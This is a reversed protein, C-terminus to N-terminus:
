LQNGDTGGPKTRENALKVLEDELEKLKGSKSISSARRTITDVGAGGLFAALIDQYGITESQFAFGMLAASLMAAWVTGAYERWSFPQGSKCWGVFGAGLAGAFTALVVYWIPSM